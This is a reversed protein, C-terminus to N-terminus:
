ISMLVATFANSHFSCTIQKLLWSVTGLSSAGGGGKGHVQVTVITACSFSSIPDDPLHWEQEACKYLLYLLITGTCKILWTCIFSGENKVETSNPPSHHTDHGLQKVWVFTGGNAM